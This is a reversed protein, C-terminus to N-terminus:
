KVAQRGPIWRYPLLGEGQGRDAYSRRNDRLAPGYVATQRGLGTVLCQALVCGVPVDGDSIFFSPIEGLRGPGDYVDDMLLGAPDGMGSLPYPLLLLINDYKSAIAQLLIFTNDIAFYYSTYYMRYLIHSTNM